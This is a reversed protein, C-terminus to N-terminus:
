RPGAGLVRATYTTAPTGTRTLQVTVTGTAGAGIPGIELYPSGAPIAASTIGAANLLTVGPQLSDLVYAASSLAPGNNTLKVTQTYIGTQRNYLVASPVITMQPTVTSVISTLYSKWGAKVAAAFPQLQSYDAYWSTYMLGTVGPIGKAAQLEQTAAGAGDGSDYYGAIMQKYPTQQQTNSGSFWTLSNTLNGLNWNMITVNPPVGTWSGALNGEVFYYNDIANHFPDFMDSWVYLSASPALSGWYSAANTVHWGLLQGPTMNKAKCAACSNMHRMEDYSLLFNMGSPMSSVIAQANQQMWKQAGPETLCIGVDGGPEALQVAYYDMAVTQGAQLSTGAPLTVTTPVHYYTNFPFLAGSAILPDLVPNFDLGEVFVTNPNAPDYVTLPTGSRRLVYILSTEEVLADDFWMTGTSGGWVGFYLGPSSSAQTNFTFDLETWDQTSQLGLQTNFMVSNTSADYVEIQAFGQFNATKVWIRGHYQRWPTVNLVQHFRSNGTANTVYGSALGSHFVTTDIGMDPDNFDFWGTVGSEFGSNMLGGFSNVPVLATRTANVTFQSGTIHQGEAWNPNNILVGDSYGYPSVMGAIKMGLGQAHAVVQQMYPVDNALFTTSALFTFTDSWFMVGTYGYSFALDIQTQIASVDSTSQPYAEQFYWLDPTANQASVGLSILVISFGLTFTRM